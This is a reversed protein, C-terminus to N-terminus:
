QAQRKTSKHNELGDTWHLLDKKHHGDLDELRAQGPTHHWCSNEVLVKLRPQFASLLQWHQSRYTLKSQNCPRKFTHTLISICYDLHNCHIYGKKEENTRSTGADAPCDQWQNQPHISQRRRFCLRCGHLAVNAETTSSSGLCLHGGNPVWFELVCKSCPHPWLELHYSSEAQCRGSLMAQRLSRTWDMHNCPLIRSRWAGEAGYTQRFSKEDKREQVFCVLLATNNLQISLSFYPSSTQIM